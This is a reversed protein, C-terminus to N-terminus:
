RSSRLRWWSSVSQQFVDQGTGSSHYHFVIRCTIRLPLGDPQGISLSTSRTVHIAYVYFFCIIYICICLVGVLMYLYLSLSFFPSLSLSLTITSLFFLLFCFCDLYTGHVHIHIICVSRVLIPPLRRRRRLRSGPFRVGSQRPFSRGSAAPNVHSHGIFRDPSTDRTTVLARPHFM